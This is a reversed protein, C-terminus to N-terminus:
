QRIFFCLYSAFSNSSLDVDATWPIEADYAKQYVTGTIRTCAPATLPFNWSYEELQTFSKTETWSSSWEFHFAASKSWVNKLSVEYKVDFGSKFGLTNSSTYTETYSKKGMVQFEQPTQTGYNPYDINAMLRMEGESENPDAYQFNNLSYDLANYDIGAFNSGLPIKNLDEARKKVYSDLDMIATKEDLARGTTAASDLEESRAQNRLHNYSSNGHVGNLSLLVSVALYTIKM